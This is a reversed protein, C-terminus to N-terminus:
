IAPSRRTTRRGSKDLQNRLKEVAADLATRFDAAEARAVNVRGRAFRVILEVVKAGHDVDFVVGASQPRPGMKATKEVLEVARIKLEASLEAHRATVTVLM